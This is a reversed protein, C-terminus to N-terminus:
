PLADGVAAVLPGDGGTWLLADRFTFVGGEDGACPLVEGFTFVRGGGGAWRPLPDIFLFGEGACGSVKCLLLLLM